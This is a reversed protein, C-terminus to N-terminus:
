TGGRLENTQHVDQVRFLKLGSRYAQCMFIDLRHHKQEPHLFCIGVSVAKAHARVSICMCALIQMFAHM